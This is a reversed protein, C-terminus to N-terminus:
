ATYQGTYVSQANSFGTFVGPYHQNLFELPPCDQPCNYIVWQHLEPPCLKTYTYICKVTLDPGPVIVFLLDRWKSPANLKLVLGPSLEVNIGKEELTAQTYKSKILNTTYKSWEKSDLNLNVEVVKPRIPLQFSKSIGKAKKYLKNREQSFEYEMQRLQERLELYSWNTKKRYEVWREAQAELQLRALQYYRCRLNSSLAPYTIFKSDCYVALAQEIANQITKSNTKESNIPMINKIKYENKLINYQTILHARYKQYAESLRTQLTQDFPPPRPKQTRLDLNLISFDQYLKIEWFRQMHAFQSCLKNIRFVRSLTEPDCNLAILRLVDAPIFGQSISM